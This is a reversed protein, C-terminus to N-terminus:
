LAKNNLKKPNLMRITFFPMTLKINKKFTVKEIFVTNSKNKGISERETNRFDSFKNKTDSTNISIQTRIKNTFITFAILSIETSLVMTINTNEAM